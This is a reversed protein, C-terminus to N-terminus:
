AVSDRDDEIVLLSNGFRAVLASISCVRRHDDGPIYADLHFGTYNWGLTYVHAKEFMLHPTEGFKGRVAVTFWMTGKETGEEGEHTWGTGDTSEVTRIFRPCPVEVQFSLADQSWGSKVVPGHLTRPDGGWVVM